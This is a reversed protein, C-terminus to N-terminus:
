SPVAASDAASGESADTLHSVGKGPTSARRPLVTSMRVYAVGEELDLSQDPSKTRCNFSAVLYLVSTTRAMSASSCMDLWSFNKVSRSKKAGLM